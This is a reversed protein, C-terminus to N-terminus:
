ESFHFPVAQFTLSYSREHGPAEPHGVDSMSFASCQLEADLQVATPAATSKSNEAVSTKVQFPVLHCFAVEGVGAPL